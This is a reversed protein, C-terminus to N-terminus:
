ALKEFRKEAVGLGKVMQDLNATTHDFSAGMIEQSTKAAANFDNFIKLEDTSLRSLKQGRSTKSKKEIVAFQDELKILTELSEKLRKNNEPNTLELGGVKKVHEDLAKMRNLVVLVTGALAAMPPNMVALAGIFAISVTQINEGLLEVAKAAGTFGDKLVQAGGGELIQRQFKFMTNKLTNIKGNLTEPGQAATEGFTKRLEAAFKPLMDEATVKGTELLKNM